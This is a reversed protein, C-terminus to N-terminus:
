EGVGSGASRERGGNQDPEAHIQPAAPLPALRDLDLGACIAAVLADVPPGVDLTLADRPAELAAFQSALLSAPMYRHRRSALRQGILEPSGTLHVFRLGPMRDALLERYRERLASCALVLPEGSGAAERLLVNLRELWPRRDDDDLPIGARMKEVNAPPHFDDGDAFRWGLREALARGVSTKGCGSVGMVVIADIGGDAPGAPGAAGRRAPRGSM